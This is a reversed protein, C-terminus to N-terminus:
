NIMSNNQIQHNILEELNEMVEDNRLSEDKMEEKENLDLLREQQHDVIIDDISWGVGREEKKSEEKEEEKEELSKVKEDKILLEATIENSKVQDNMELTSVDNEISKILGNEDSENVKEQSNIEISKHDKNLNTVNPNQWALLDKEASTEAVKLCEKRDSIWRTCHMHLWKGETLGCLSLSRSEPNGSYPDLKSHGDGNENMLSPDDPAKILRNPPYYRGAIHQLVLHHEKGIPTLRRFYFNPPPLPMYRKVISLHSASHLSEDFESENSVEDLKRQSENALEFIPGKIMGKEKDNRYIGTIKLFYCRNESGKSKSRLGLPLDEASVMLRILEGCWIKEAGWWLYQFWPLASDEYLIQLEEDPLTSEMKKLHPIDYRDMLTWYNKIHVSIQLSLAFATIAESLTKFSKLCPRDSEHGDKIHKLSLPSINIKYLNFPTPYNLYALLDEEGKWFVDSTGLLRVKWQYRQEVKLTIEEENSHNSTMSPQSLVQAQNSKRRTRLGVTTTSKDSQNTKTELISKSDNSVEPNSILVREECMAPWYEVKVDSYGESEGNIPEDLKCWVLEAMRFACKLESLDRDRDKNVYPGNFVSKKYTTGNTSSSQNPLSKRGTPKHNSQNVRNARLTSADATTRRRNKEKSIEEEAKRKNQSTFKKSSSPSSLNMAKESFGLTSNVAQQSRNNSCYKCKCKSRNEAKPEHTCLWLLHPSFENATRFKAVFECGLLYTDEREGKTYRYLKYNSPFDTLRWDEDVKDETLSLLKALAKGMLKKWREELAHTEADDANWACKSGTSDIIPGIEKWKKTSGDSNLCTIFHPGKRNTTSKNITYFEHTIMSTPEDTSM